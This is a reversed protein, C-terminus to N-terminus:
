EFSGCSMPFNGGWEGVGLEKLFVGEAPGRQTDADLIEARDQHSWNFSAEWVCGWCHIAVSNQWLQLVNTVLPCLLRLMVATQWLLLLFHSQLCVARHWYHSYECLQVCVPFHIPNNTKRLFPFLLILWGQKSYPCFLQINTRMYVDQRSFGTSFDRNLSYLCM